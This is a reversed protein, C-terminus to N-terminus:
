WNMVQLENTSGYNTGTAWLLYYEESDKEKLIAEILMYEGDNNEYGFAYKFTNFWNDVELQVM